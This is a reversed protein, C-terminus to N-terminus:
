SLTGTGTSTTAGTQAAASGTTAVAIGAAVTVTASKIAAEIIDAIGQAFAQQSEEQEMVKTNNILVFIQEKIVSNSIAM